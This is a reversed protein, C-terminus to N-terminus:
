QQNSDKPNKPLLDRPPRRRYSHDFRVLPIHHEKSYQNILEIMEPAKSFDKTALQLSIEDDPSRILLHEPLYETSPCYCIISVIKSWHMEKRKGKETFGSIGTHDVKVKHMFNSNEKPILVGFWLFALFAVLILSLDGWTFITAALYICSGILLFAWPVASTLETAEDQVEGLRPVLVESGNISCFRPEEFISRSHITFCGGSLNLSLYDGKGNQENRAIAKRLSQASPIHKIPISNGYCM